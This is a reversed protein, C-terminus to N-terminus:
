KTWFVEFEEDTMIDINWQRLCAKRGIKQKIVNMIPYLFHYKKDINGLSGEEEWYEPKIHYLEIPIEWSNMDCWMKAWNEEPIKHLEDIVSHSFIPLVANNKEEKISKETNM